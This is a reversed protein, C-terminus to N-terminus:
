ISNTTNIIPKRGSKDLNNYSHIWHKWQVFIREQLFWHHTKVCEKVKFIRDPGQLICEAGYCLSQSKLLSLRVACGNVALDNPAVCKDDFM